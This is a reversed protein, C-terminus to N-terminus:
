SGTLPAACCFWPESVTAPDPAPTTLEEIPVPKGSVQQIVEIQSALTRSYDEAREAGQAAIRALRQQLGPLANDSYLPPFGMRGPDYPGFFERDKLLLSNPPTLLEISLQVPEVVDSLHSSAVFSAIDVLDSTKSWPTFPCFTPHLGIDAGFLLDRARIVDSPLHQKDLRDLVLPSLSEVASIVFILGQHSLEQWIGPNAVIESIKTTFDFTVEPAHRHIETLISLTHRPANLFDPDGFSLHTAGSTVQAKADQVVAQSDNIAIRGDFIPVIPCHRCRHRCGVTTELYGSPRKVGRYNVSRYSDLPILDRREILYRRRATRKALSPEGTEILHLTAPADLTDSFVIRSMDLGSVPATTLADRLVEAYLGVVITQTNALDWACATLLDRAVSAGTYMPASLILVDTERIAKVVEDRPIKEADVVTVRGSTAAGLLEAGFQPQHGLDYTAVYLINQM